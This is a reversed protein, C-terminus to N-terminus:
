GKKCHMIEYRLYDLHNLKTEQVHIEDLLGERKQELIRLREDGTDDGQLVLTMYAEIEARGFGIEHLTMILSLYELDHDDYQWAGLAKKVAGCCGWQEYEKLVKRPIQYRRSVEDMTMCCDERREAGENVNVNRQRWVAEAKPGPIM